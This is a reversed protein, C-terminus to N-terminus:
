RTPAKTKGPEAQDVAADIAQMLPAGKFIWDDGRFTQGVVQRVIQLVQEVEPTRTM